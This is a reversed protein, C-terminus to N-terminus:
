RKATVPMLEDAAIGWTRCAFDAAESNPEAFRWGQELYNKATMENGKIGLFILLGLFACVTLLATAAVDGGALWPGVLAVIWLALFVFGCARCRRRFLPIGFLWSFLFLTWSWGFEVEKLEGTSPNKFDVHTYKGNSQGNTDEAQTM